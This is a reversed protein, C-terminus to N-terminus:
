RCAVEGTQLHVWRGAPNLIGLELAQAQTRIHRYAAITRRQAATWQREVTQGCNECTTMHTHTTHPTATTAATNTM